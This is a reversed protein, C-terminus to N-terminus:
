KAYLYMMRPSGSQSILEKMNLFDIESKFMKAASMSFLSGLGFGEEYTIVSANKMNKHDKKMASITDDYFGLEDVLGIKKAQRGDYVRGDAIKKVDAKSMHRGKSIVNVFGEYSDNVMTQMIKREEKTMDRTPSMIDKHAGSKITEFKIGLEDALKSYNVSEMIVGLSGTLTEPSAYIKDAATSIYYGGSAAMSGM